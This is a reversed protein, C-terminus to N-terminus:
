FKLKLEKEEKKNNENELREKITKYASIYSLRTDQPKYQGFYLVNVLDPGYMTYIDSIVKKNRHKELMAKIRKMFTYYDEDEKKYKIFLDVFPTRIRIRETRFIEKEVAKIFEQRLSYNSKELNKRNYIIPKKLNKGFIKTFYKQKKTVKIANKIKKLSKCNFIDTIYCIEYGEELLKIRAKIKRMIVQNIFKLEEETLEDVITINLYNEGYKKQLLEIDKDPLTEIIKLVTECDTKFLTFFPIYNSLGRRGKGM